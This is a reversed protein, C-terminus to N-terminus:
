QKTLYHIECIPCYARMVKQINSSLIKKYNSITEIITKAIINVRVKQRKPHFTNLTLLLIKIPLDIKSDSIKITRFTLDSEYKKSHDKIHPMAFSMGASGLLVAHSLFLTAILRPM